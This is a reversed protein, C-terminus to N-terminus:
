WERKSKRFGGNFTLVNLKSMKMRLIQTGHNVILNWFNNKPYKGM